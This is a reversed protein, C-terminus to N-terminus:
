GVQGHEVAPEGGRCQDVVHAAVLLHAVAGQMENQRAADALREGGGVNRGVRHQIQQPILSAARLGFGAQFAPGTTTSCPASAVRESHPCCAPMSGASYAKISASSSRM